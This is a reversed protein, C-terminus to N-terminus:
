FPRRRARVVLWGTVVALLAFLGGIAAELQWLLLELGDDTDPEVTSGDAAEAEAVPATTDTAALEPAPTPLPSPTAKETEGPASAAEEEEVPEEAVDAESEAPAPAAMAAMAPAPVAAPAVPAAAPAPSPAVESASQALAAPAARAAAVEPVTQDLSSVRGSQALVGVANGILLAAVVSGAAATALRASWMLGSTAAVQAPAAQLKFSRPVPLEPLERLLSVTARFGELESRCLECGPLHADVRGRESETVQGDAYASLLQRLRSHRNFLWTM